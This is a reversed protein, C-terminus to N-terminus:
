LDLALLELLDVDVFLHELKPITAFSSLYQPTGLQGPMQLKTLTSFIIIFDIHSGFAVGRLDLTRLPLNALADLAVLM